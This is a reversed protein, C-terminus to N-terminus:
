KKANPNKLYVSCEAIDRTQQDELVVKYYFSMEGNYMRDPYESVIVGKLYAGCFHSGSFIYVRQGVRYKPKHAKAYLQKICTLLAYIDEGHRKKIDFILDRQQKLENRLRNIGFM